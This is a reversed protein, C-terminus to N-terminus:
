IKYKFAKGLRTALPITYLCLKVDAPKTTECKNQSKACSKPITSKCNM